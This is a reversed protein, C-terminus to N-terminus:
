YFFIALHLTALQQVVAVAQFVGVFLEVQDADGAVTGLLAQEAGEALGVGALFLLGVLVMYVLDHGELVEYRAEFVAQVVGVDVEGVLLKQADLPQFAEPILCQKAELLGDLL